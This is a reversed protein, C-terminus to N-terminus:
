FRRKNTFRQKERRGNEESFNNSRETRQDKIPDYNPDAQKLSLNIRGKEDIEIVKVKVRDGINVIDTVKAVRTPSLESIHILGEGGGIDVMAGFEFLRTVPGELIEGVEHERVIDEIMKLAAETDKHNRGTVYITGDQEVDVAAGTLAIINNIVKGGAGIVERIKEPNINIKLVRPAYPSLEKRAESIAEKMKSLIHERAKRGAKISEEIIELNVGSVKIDMQITNVGAQTGAIKFDMDGHHDEPGQIDTLLKWRDGSSILGIAVGAVPNKIPVGADMLALSSACISGQSTSGNSALAESVLRITYPFDTIEPIVPLLAREALAGHGIERRGPSGMRGTEGTSFPPFNYHHMFRKTTQIEMGEILQGQKPGDLTVVSLIHTAGRYFVGSGHLIPLYGVQAKIERVEDLKRGDVRRDKELVNRHIIENVGEDLIAEAITKKENGFKEASIKLWENKIASIEEPTDKFLAEELKGEITQKFELIMEEPSGQVEILAKTKGVEKIINIQFDRIEEAYKLGFSFSESLIKDEVESGNAEIMNILGNGISCFVNEMILSNREEYSPNIKFQGGERERGIRVPGVPGSWPIDSLGLALSSAIIAVIDPDNKGDISLALAVIQVEKRIRQDFLPRLTRDILRSTLVAEDTPRGERRMFRSGLIRGAAYFREEYNVTLPFFDGGEKSNKSMTASAFVATGGLRVVVSGNAQNALDNIEVTLTEGGWRTEYKQLKM